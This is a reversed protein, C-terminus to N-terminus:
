SSLDGQELRVQWRDGDTWILILRGCLRNGRVDAIIRDPRQEIWDLDGRDIRAVTGRNGSVPGEYELYLRRHDPLRLAEQVSGVTPEAQIRWTWLVDGVDLMLDFHPAPHDHALLVFPTM